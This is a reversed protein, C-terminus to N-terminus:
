EVVGNRMDERNAPHSWWQAAMSASPFYYENSGNVADHFDLVFQSHQVVEKIYVEDNSWYRLKGDWRCEFRFLNNLPANDDGAEWPSPVKCKALAQILADRLAQAEHIHEPGYKALVQEEAIVSGPPLLDELTERVLRLAAWSNQRESHTLIDKSHLKNLLAFWAGRFPKM